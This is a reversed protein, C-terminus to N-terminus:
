VVEKTIVDGDILAPQTIHKHLFQVTDCVRRAGTKRIYCWFSRYHEFSSGLFWGDVSHEAWSGRDGPKEHCQMACGIPALPVQDFDFPGFLYAQASM